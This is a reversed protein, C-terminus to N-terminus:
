GAQCRFLQAAQSRQLCGIDDAPKISVCADSIGTHIVVLRVEIRGLEDRNPLQDTVTSSALSV